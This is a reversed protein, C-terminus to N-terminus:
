ANNVAYRLGHGFRFLPSETDFAVDTRSAIVADMSRALDFPLRGEPEADGFLLEVFPYDDTGFSGLLAAAGRLPTLVAPRELYVDIVTPLATVLAVIREIEATPLELSGKHLSGLFGMAPDHYSPAHLRLVAVDAEEPRQVVSAYGDFAAPDVGEQYVKLGRALPLHGVSEEDNHLLVVSQQQARRGAAMFAASGVIRDAADEDVFRRDDFLGLVFKEALLRRASVDLRSEPVLGKRVVSLLIETASEGGFQDIGADLLRVVREEQSLHEVGWAKAPFVDGYGTILTFDTCVIGEFGLETRLLETIIQKSFAFGVEEYKTGIPMGYYPMIQRVGAEIAVKFPLLHYDFAGGPYVQERGDQFHPDLGDKQPGGGPFHKAMASVSDPGISSGQFGRLYAQVLRGTLDADEGFTQTIRAWRPETALDIQPGLAVRIGAAVFERRTIDGYEQAVSESGIAAIGVPEPWRSFAGASSTTLPNDTVSHRPDSSISVPIGLPHELAARQITNHWQAMARGSAPSGQAAFHTIRNSRVLEAAGPRGYPDAAEADAVDVYTHFLLGVKDELAMRALLDEVRAEPALTPDGYPYTPQM